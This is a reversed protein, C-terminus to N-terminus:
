NDTPVSPLSIPGNAAEYSRVAQKVLFEIEKNVSRGNEAAIVRFKEMLEKDIRLPYPNAQVM